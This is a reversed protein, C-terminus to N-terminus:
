NDDDMFDDYRSNATSPVGVDDGALSIGTDGAIALSGALIPEAETEIVIISPPYNLTSLSSHASNM